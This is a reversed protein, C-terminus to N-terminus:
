EERIKSFNYICMFIVFVRNYLLVRWVSYSRDFVIHLFVFLLVLPLSDTVGDDYYIRWETDSNRKRDKECLIKEGNLIVGSPLADDSAFTFHRNGHYPLGYSTMLTISKESRTVNGSGQKRIRCKQRRESHCRVALRWGFRIHLIQQRPSSSPLTDDSVISEESQTM